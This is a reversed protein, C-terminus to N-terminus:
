PEMTGHTKPDFTVLQLGRHAIQCVTNPTNDGGIILAVQVWSRKGPGLFAARLVRATLPDEINDIIQRRHARNLRRFQRITMGRGRQTQARPALAGAARAPGQDTAQAAQTRERKPAPPPTSKRPPAPLQLQRRLEAVREPLDGTPLGLKRRDRLERQLDELAKHQEDM